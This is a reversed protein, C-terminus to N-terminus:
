KRLRRDHIEKITNIENQLVLLKLVMSTITAGVDRGTVAFKVGDIFIICAFADTGGKIIRKITINFKGDRCMAGNGDSPGWWKDYPFAAKCLEVLETDPSNAIKTNPNRM